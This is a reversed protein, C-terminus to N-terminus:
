FSGLCFVIQESSKGALRLGAVTIGECCAYGSLLTKLLDAAKKEFGRIVLFLMGLKKEFVELPALHRDSRAVRRADTPVGQSLQFSGSGAFSVLPSNEVRAKRFLGDLFPELTRCLSKLLDGGDFFPVFSPVILQGLRQLVLAEEFLGVFGKPFAPFATTDDLSEFRRKFARGTRVWL